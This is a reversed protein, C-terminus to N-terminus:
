KETKETDLIKKNKTMLNEITSQFVSSQHNIEKIIEHKFNKVNEHLGRLDDGDSTSIISENLMTEITKSM